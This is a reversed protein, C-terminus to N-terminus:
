IVKPHQANDHCYDVFPKLELFPDSKLTWVDTGAAPHSPHREPHGLNGWVPPSPRRDSILTHLPHPGTYFWNM